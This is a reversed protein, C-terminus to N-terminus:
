RMSVIQEAFDAPFEVVVDVKNTRLRQRAAELSQRDITEITVRRAEQETAFWQRDFRDGALLPPLAPVDSLEESGLIEVRGDHQQLFQTLQFLLMGLMPYMLLPLVFIVFLTRRDRLQDRLERLWVLRIQQWNM